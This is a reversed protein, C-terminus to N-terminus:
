PHKSGNPMITGQLSKAEQLQAQTVQAGILNASSLDAGSLTVWHLDAGSLNAGSLDVGSLDVGSLDAHNLDVGSLDAGARSIASLSIVPNEVGILQEDQLFQLVVRNRDADLRRLTTLTRERAVQSVEDGSKSKRLNHNLLLDSMEDLYTQLTTERQQDAAIQLDTQHQRESALASAQSQQTSFWQAALFLAIPLALATLLQLLLQLWDWGTKDSFGWRWKNAAKKQKKQTKRLQDVQEQDKPSLPPLWLKDEIAILKSRTKDQHNEDM